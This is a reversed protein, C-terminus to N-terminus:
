DSIEGGLLRNIENVDIIVLNRIERAVKAM